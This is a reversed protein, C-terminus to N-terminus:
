DAAATAPTKVGLQVLGARPTGPLAHSSAAGNASRMPIRSAPVESKRKIEGFMLRLAWGLTRRITKSLGWMGVLQMGADSLYLRSKSRVLATVFRLPNYFYLYAAMINLQKKWPQKHRSAVVYNADVMYQEVRRGGVSEYALGSTFSEVYLKSGTAPTIMLVQLSVAGAKRLLRAQNILGYPRPGRSILPQEDHHMMMPMANIGHKQLLRFSESTKDVSQGKKILTATMDEVGIWLARIGAQRALPLHERLKLTDHVTVETAWRFRKRLPASDHQVRALTELIDLARPESNFFNDDAGFFYRMGYERRLRSMEAAVRQGSKVRFLRQNYAPIPCYPCAFKCGFTLVLSGIPSLWRVRKAPLAQSGLTAKRSPPELLQYGLVAYPLEDLDGLLRQIGTDVLEQAVGERDTRAYVLGPIGDLMGSNRARIFTTRLSEDRARISLLLELVSLVVYEEGTVALDAGWPDLPDGSFVGWPEYITKPGGAIILPRNAPDIRGADRILAECQASHIQMSSVMFIDPIRGDLRMQSPRFNRNWQQLVIRTKNFGSDLMASGIARVGAPVMRVDAYIFPLMRTRHDFACAIVTTLDHNRGINRLRSRLGLLEGPKLLEDGRARRPLEM